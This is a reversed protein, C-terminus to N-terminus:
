RELSAKYAKGNASRKWNQDKLYLECNSKIKIPHFSLTKIKIKSEKVDINEYFKTFENSYKETILQPDKIQIQNLSFISNETKTLNYHKNYFTKFCSNIKNLHKAKLNTFTNNQFLENKIRHINQIKQENATKPPKYRSMYSATRPYRYKTELTERSEKGNNIQSYKTNESLSKSYIPNDM